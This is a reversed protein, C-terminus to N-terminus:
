APMSRRSPGSQSPANPVTIARDDPRATGPRGDERCRWTLQAYSDVIGARALWLAPAQADTEFWVAATGLRFTYGWADMDALMRARGMGPVHDALLIQLYCVADEEAHDGGADRELKRRRAHDMCVVHATEHLVSHVPTDSRAFLRAGQLGAEPDDWYSYPITERDPVPSLVLDYRALLRALPDIGVEALTRAVPSPPSTV